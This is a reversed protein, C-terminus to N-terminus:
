RGAKRSVGRRLLVTGGFCVASVLAMAALQTLAGEQLFSDAVFERAMGAPMWPALKQLPEPLAYVPYFCGAVYCQGVSLFFHWVAGSVVNGALEFILMNIAAAMVAVPLLRLFVTGFGPLATDALLKPGAMGLIAALVAAMAALVTVQALFEYFVQKGGSFGRSALLRALSRDQRVGVAVFAVGIFLLLFVSLSCLYYPIVDLGVSIGLEEVVCIQSRSLLLDVYVLAMDDMQKGVSGPIQNDKMVEALAYVGKQSYVVLDTILKTMEDKFMSVVSQGGASTVYTVTDMDGRLAREIFQEPLVVYAAIKGGMLQQRAENEPLELIEIAFRTDDFAQLAMVGMQVYQGSTDGTIAIKFKQKDADNQSNKWMGGALVGVCLLSVLLGGLLVPFIRWLRKWQLYFYRRM